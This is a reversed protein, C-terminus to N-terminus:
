ETQRQATRIAEYVSRAGQALEFSPTQQQGWGPFSIGGAWRSMQNTAGFTITGSGNSKEDLSVDTLTRLNLSKVKRSFVGSVIIIRESTVAYYHRCSTLSIGLLGEPWRKQLGSGQSWLVVERSSSKHRV